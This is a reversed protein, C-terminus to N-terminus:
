DFDIYIASSADPYDDLAIFADVIEVRLKDLRTGSSYFSEMWAGIKVQSMNTLTRPLTLQYNLNFGDAPGPRGSTLNLSTVAYTTPSISTWVPAAGNTSALLRIKGTCAASLSTVANGVRFLGATIFVKANPYTSRNVSTVDTVPGSPQLKNVYISTACTVPGTSLNWADGSMEVACVTTTNGDGLQAFNFVTGTAGSTVVYDTGAVPSVTTPRLIVSAM